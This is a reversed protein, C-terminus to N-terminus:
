KESRSEWVSKAYASCADSFRCEALCKSSCDDNGFCQPPVCQKFMTKAQEATLLNTGVPWLHTGFGDPKTPKFSIGADPSFDKPLMWCLFKDVMAKYYAEKRDILAQVDIKM